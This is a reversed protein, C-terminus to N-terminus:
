NLTGPERAADSNSFIYALRRAIENSSFSSMEVSGGHEVRDVFMGLQKGILELAKNAGAANFKYLPRLEGDADFDYVPRGTKDTVPEGEMCRDIVARLQTIVWAQDVTLAKTREAMLETIRRVIDPIQMLVLGCRGESYGARLAAKEPDCDELYQQCFAIQKEHLVM